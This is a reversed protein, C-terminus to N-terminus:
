PPTDVYSCGGPCSLTCHGKFNDYTYWELRGNHTTTGRGEKESEWTNDTCWSRLKSVDGAPPEGDSKYQCTDCNYGFLNCDTSCWASGLSECVNNIGSFPTRDREGCQYFRSASASLTYLIPFVAHSIKM